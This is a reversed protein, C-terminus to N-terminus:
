TLKLDLTTRTINAPSDHEKRTRVVDLDLRGAKLKDLGTTSKRRTRHPDAHRSQKSASRKSKSTPKLEIGYIDLHALCRCHDVFKHLFAEPINTSALSAVKLSVFCNRRLPLAKLCPCQAVNLHTLNPAIADLYVLKECHHAALALLRPADLILAELADCAEFEIAELKNFLLAEGRLLQGDDDDARSALEHSETGALRGEAAPSENDSLAAQQGQLSGSCSARRPSMSLRNLASHSPPPWSQAAAQPGADRRSSSYEARLDDVDAILEFLPRLKKETAAKLRVSAHAFECNPRRCSGLGLQRACVPKNEKKDRPLLTALKAYSRYDPSRSDALARMLEVVPGEGQACGVYCQLVSDFREKRATRSLVSSTVKPSSSIRTHRSPMSVQDGDDDASAFAIASEGDAQPHVVRQEDFRVSTRGLDEDLEFQTEDDDRRAPWAASSPRRQLHPQGQQQTTEFAPAAAVIAGRLGKCAFLRLRRLAPCATPIAAVHKTFLERVCAFELAVLGALSSSHVDRCPGVYASAAAASALLLTGLSSPSSGVTAANVAANALPAASTDREDVTLSRLVAPRGSRLFTVAQQDRPLALRRLSPLLVGPEVDLLETVRCDLLSVEFLLPAADDFILAALNSRTASLTSLSRCGRCILRVSGLLRLGEFRVAELHPARVIISTEASARSERKDDSAVSLFRLTSSRHVPFLAALERAGFRRSSVNLTTLVNSRGLPSPPITPAAKHVDPLSDERDTDDGEQTAWYDALLPDFLADPSELAISLSQCCTNARLTEVAARNAPPPAQYSSDWSGRAEFERLTHPAVAVLASLWHSATSSRSLGCLAVRLSELKTGRFPADFPPLDLLANAEQKLSAELERRELSGVPLPSSALAAEVQKRTADDEDDSLLPALSGGCCHQSRASSSFLNPLRNLDCRLRELNPCSRAVALWVGGASLRPCRRASLERLAACGTCALEFAADSLDRCGDLNLRELAFVNGLRACTVLHAGTGSLDVSVATASVADILEAAATDSVSPADRFRLERLRPASEALADAFRGEAERAGAVCFAELEDSAITRLLSKLEGDTVGDLSAWEAQASARARGLLGGRKTMSRAAPARQQVTTPSREGTDQLGSSSARREAFVRAWSAPVVGGQTGGLGAARLELRRVAVCRARDREILARTLWQTVPGKFHAPWGVCVARCREGLVRSFKQLGRQTVGLPIRGLQLSELTSGLGCMARLTGDCLRDSEAARAWLGEVAFTPAFALQQCVRLFLENDSGLNMTAVIIRACLEELSRVRRGEESMPTSERSAGLGARCQSHSKSLSRFGRQSLAVLGLVCSRSSRWPRLQPVLQRPM